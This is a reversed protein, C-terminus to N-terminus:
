MYLRNNCTYIMCVLKVVAEFWGEGCGRSCGLRWGNMGPAVSEATPFKQM